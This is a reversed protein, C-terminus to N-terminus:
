LPLVFVAAVYGDQLTLHKHPLPEVVWINISVALGGLLIVFTASYFKSLDFIM